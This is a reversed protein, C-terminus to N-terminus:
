RWRIECLDELLIAHLAGEAPDLVLERAPDLEPKSGISRPCTAPSSLSLIECSKGPSRLHVPRRLPDRVSSKHDM